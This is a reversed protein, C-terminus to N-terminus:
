TIVVCRTECFGCPTLSGKRLKKKKPRAASTASGGAESTTTTPPVTPKPTAPAPDVPECSSVSKVSEMSIRRTSKERCVPLRGRPTTSRSAVWPATRRFLLCAPVRPVTVVMVVMVSTSQWWHQHDAPERSAPSSTSDAPNMDPQNM